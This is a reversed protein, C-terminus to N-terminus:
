KCFPCTSAEEFLVYTGESLYMSGYEETHVEIGMENDHWSNVNACHANAGDGFHIHGFTYNGFGWNENGCACFMCVFLCAALFMCIFKKM